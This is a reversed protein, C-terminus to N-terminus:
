LVHDHRGCQESVMARADSSLIRLAIRVSAEANTRPMVEVMNPSVVPSSQLLKQLILCVIASDSGRARSHGEGDQVTATGDVEQVGANRRRPWRRALRCAGYVPALHRGCSARTASMVEQSQVMALCRSEIKIQRKM